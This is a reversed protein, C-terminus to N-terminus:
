AQFGKTFANLNFVKKQETENDDQGSDDIMSEAHEKITKGLSEAFKRIDEDDFKEDEQMQKLCAFVHSMALTELRFEECKKPSHEHKDMDSFVGDGQHRFHNLVFFSAGKTINHSAMIFFANLIRDVEHDAVGCRYLASENDMDLHLFAEQLLDIGRRFTMFNVLRDVKEEDDFFNGRIDDLFQQPLGSDELLGSLFSDNKGENEKLFERSIKFKERLGRLIAPRKLRRSQGMMSVIEKMANKKM